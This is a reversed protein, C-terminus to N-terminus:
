KILANVNNSIVIEKFRTVLNLTQQIFPYQKFLLELTNNHIGKITNLPKFLMNLITSRKIKIINTNSQTAVKYLNDSTKNRKKWEAIYNRVTSSSADYGQQRIHEEIKSGMIGKELLQDIEKIYPTLKGVRKKGFSAHVPNFGENLYRTVTARALGTRRSIERKSLGQNAYDRVEEVIAMKSKVKEEHRQTHLSIFLKNRECDTTNLLKKYTRSDINLLKCIETQTTDKSQLEIIKTYKEALTLKRNSNSLPIEQSNGTTNEITDIGIIEVVLKLKKKLYDIAYETLNKYLHFRDSVQTAMPHAEQIANKYTISGDRSVVKINPYSELWKIIDAQERSEILDIIKHTHIDIM